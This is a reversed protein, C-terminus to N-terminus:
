GINVIIGLIGILLVIAGMITAVTIVNKHQFDEAM